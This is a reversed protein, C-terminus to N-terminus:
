PSPIITLLWVSFAVSGVAFIALFAWAQAWQWNGAAFFLLLGMLCLWSSTQVILRTILAGPSMGM